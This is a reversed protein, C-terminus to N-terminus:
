YMEPEFFKQEAWIGSPVLLGISSKDLEVRDHRTGDDLSVECCGAVSIMVQMCRRHAHQGRIQGEGTVVVFVREIHM